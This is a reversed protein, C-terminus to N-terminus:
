FVLSSASITGFHIIDGICYCSIQQECDWKGTNIQSGLNRGDPPEMKKQPRPIRSELHYPVYRVERGMGKVPEAKHGCWVVVSVLFTQTGLFIPLHINPLYGATKIM